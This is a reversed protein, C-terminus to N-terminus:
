PNSKTWEYYSERSRPTKMWGIYPKPIELAEKVTYLRDRVIAPAVDGEAKGEVAWQMQPQWRTSHSPDPWWTIEGTEMIKHYLELTVIADQRVYALVRKQDEISGKWMTPALAGAVGEMKSLGHGRAAKDLKIMYGKECVMNFGIDIHNLVMEMCYERWDKPGEEALVSFDFKLGNWTVIYYDDLYLKYLYSALEAVKSESMREPYCESESFHESTGHWV